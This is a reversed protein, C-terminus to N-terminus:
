SRGTTLPRAGDMVTSIRPRAIWPSPAPPRIGSAIATIPSRIAGRSRPFHCPSVPATKPTAETTPGAVPPQIESLALQRHAREEDAQREAQEREDDDL